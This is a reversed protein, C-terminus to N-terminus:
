KNLQLVIFCLVRSQMKSPTKILFSPRTHMPSVAPDLVGGQHVEHDRAGLLAPTYADSMCGDSEYHTSGDTNEVTKLTVTSYSLVSEEPSRQQSYMEAQSVPSAHTNGRLNGQNKGLQSRGGNGEEPVSM